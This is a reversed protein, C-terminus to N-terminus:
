RPMPACLWVHAVSRRVGHAPVSNARAAGAVDGAGVMADDLELRLEGIQVALLRREDEGRAPDGIEGADRGDGRQHRVAQDQRVLEVVVRHDLAHAPGAALLLHPPVVVDRMELLEQLRRIRGGLEDHELAEVRHVAVDRRDLLDDLEGLAVVGHGVDVFDVRDAHVARAAAADGLALPEGVPDVHDLARQGLAVPREAAVDRAVGTM